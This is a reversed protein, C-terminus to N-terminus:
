AHSTLLWLSSHSVSEGEYFLIVNKNTYRESRFVFHMAGSIVCNEGMLLHLTMATVKYVMAYIASFM